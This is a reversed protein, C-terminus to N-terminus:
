WTALMSGDHSFSCGSLPRDDGIESSDLALSSAQKLAWDVEADLDEDPDDRKRRARHVRLAAKVISYKAIDLRSELLAISGETYFPYQIEEEPGESPAGSSGVDEDENAKMLRELQGETQLNGMLGRLRERREMEREGFLTVPEGLRRLRTRVSLDNTPVAIAASRRKTLLDQVAKEQRERALRSEESIEYEASSGTAGRTSGAEDADSDSDSVRAEGNQVVPPRLVPPRIPIPALPRPISVPVVPIPAINPVVPPPIAPPVVTSVPVLSIGGIGSVVTQNDDAVVGSSETVSTSASNDEDVEMGSWFHYLLILSGWEIIIVMKFILMGDVFFLEANM